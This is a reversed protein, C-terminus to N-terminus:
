PRLRRKELCNTLARATQYHRKLDWSCSYPYILQSCCLVLSSAIKSVEDVFEILSRVGTEDPNYEIKAQEMALNVSVSIVGPEGQLSNEITAVCSDM